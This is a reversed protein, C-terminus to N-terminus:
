EGEDDSIMVTANLTDLLTMGVEIVVIVSFFEDKEFAVDNITFVNVCRIGNTM